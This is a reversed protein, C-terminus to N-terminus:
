SRMVFEVPMKRLVPLYDRGWRVMRELGVDWSIRPKWGLNRILSSDLWYRSDQHVRDPVIEALEDFTMGLAGAILAVVDRIAIPHKPGVNYITGL